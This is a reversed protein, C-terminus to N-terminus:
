KGDIGATFMMEKIFDRFQSPGYNKTIEIQKFIIELM